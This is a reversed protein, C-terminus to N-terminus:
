TFSGFVLVVPKKGLHDRLAISNKGDVTPLTFCPALQGVRPGEYPSGIEGNFLGALLMARDPREASKGAPKGAPRAPATARRPPWWDFDAATLAGDRNRDLREWIALPGTFEEASIKGDRDADFRQVLWNWGLRSQSPQFWGQGGSMQGQLIADYMAAAEDCVPPGAASSLLYVGLSEALRAAPNPAAAAPGLPTTNQAAARLPFSAALCGLTCIRFWFIM